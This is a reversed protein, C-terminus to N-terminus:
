LLSLKRALQHSFVIIRTSDFLCFSTGRARFKLNTSGHSKRLIAARTSPLSRWIWSLCFYPGQWFAEVTLVVQTLRSFALNTKWWIILLSNRRQKKGKAKHWKIKFKAQACVTHCYYITFWDIHWSVSKSVHIHSIRFCILCCHMGSWWIIKRTVLLM